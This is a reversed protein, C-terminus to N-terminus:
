VAGLVYVNRWPAQSGVYPVAGDPRCSCSLAEVHTYGFALFYDM